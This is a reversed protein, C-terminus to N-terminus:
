VTSHSSRADELLRDVRRRSILRRLRIMAKIAGLGRAHVMRHIQGRLRELEQAVINGIEQSLRAEAELQWRKNVNQRQRALMRQYEPHSYTIGLNNAYLQDEETRLKHQRSNCQLVVMKEYELRQNIDQLRKSTVMWRWLFVEVQDSFGHFEWSSRIQQAWPNDFAALFPQAPTPSDEDSESMANTARNPEVNANTSNASGILLYVNRLLAEAQEAMPLDLDVMWPANVPKYSVDMISANVFLTEESFALPVNSGEALDVEGHKSLNLYACGNNLVEQRDMPLNVSRDTVWSTRQAGWGEHIHGFCHLRPRCRRVARLLHECGVNEGHRTQDLIGAPPGHTLLIDIKPHDPIPNKAEQNFRDEDRRYPFAFNCFEPQYPSAYITFRAGNSLTFTRVGEDLYVIGTKKAKAGTWMERVVELDEGINRHFKRKGIQEYYPEDLTVDHNGAIVIKLEADAKSLMDVMSEYEHIYGAMTIDGAHLLIDASPLPERYAHSKDNSPRLEATHTDSIICFRTKVTKTAESTMKSLENM